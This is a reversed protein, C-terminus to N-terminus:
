VSSKTSERTAVAVPAMGRRLSRVEAHQQDGVGRGLHRHRRGQERPCPAGKFEGRPATPTCLTNARLQKTFIKQHTVTILWGNITM